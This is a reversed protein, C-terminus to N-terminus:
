RQSPSMLRDLLRLLPSKIKLKFALVQNRQLSNFNNDSILILSRGGGPLSPGMTLGEVNDLLIGSNRLNLLLKKRVPKIKQSDIGLVSNTNQIEDAGELSVEYLSVGFQLSNFFREISVFHGQNDLALLDTLGSTFFSGFNTSKSVPETIYLFEKEPQNTLLNYQLIRCPTSVNPKAATGDQILANETATFLHGNDPTITLSEFGKNERIGQKGNKDPLFKNPIALTKVLKGSAISFEQIFPNILKKVDGESSIFLTDNNTLALAETDTEGPLFPQDNQNLLTTVGVITIDSNELKGKSLDIKLSYFRAAAKEGRDDSIAYYLQKKEDYTIGSLGGVETNEISLNNPLAAEGIFEIDSIEIANVQANTVLISISIIVIAMAIYIISLKPLPKKSLKM